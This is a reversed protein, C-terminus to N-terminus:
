GSSGGFLGTVVRDLLSKRKTFEEKVKGPSEIDQENFGVVDHDGSKKSKSSNDFAVEFPQPQM